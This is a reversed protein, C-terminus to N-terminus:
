LRVGHHGTRHGLSLIGGLYALAHLEMQVGGHAVHISQRIGGGGHLLSGGPAMPGNGNRVVAYGLGERIGHLSGGLRLYGAGILIDFNEVTHFPVVDVIHVVANHDMPIPVHSKVFGIHGKIQLGCTEARLIVPDDLDASHQHPTPFFQVPELGKYVWVPLQFLLDNLEGANRIFHELASGGNLLHQGFEQVKHSVPDQNGVVGVEVGAEDPRLAAALSQWVSIRCCIRQNQGLIHQRLQIFELQVNHGIGQAQWVELVVPRRVIGDCAAEDHIGKHTFHLFLQANVVQLLDILLHFIQPGLAPDHVTVGPVDNNQGLVLHAQSIEVM